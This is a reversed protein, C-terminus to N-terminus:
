SYRYKFKFQNSEGYILLVLLVVRFILFQIPVPYLLLIYRWKPYSNVLASIFVSVGTDFTVCLATKVADGRTM